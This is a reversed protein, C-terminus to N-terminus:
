HRELRQLALRAVAILRGLEQGSLLRASLELLRSGSRIELDPPTWLAEDGLGPIVKWRPLAVPQTASGGVVVRGPERMTRFTLALVSPTATHLKFFLLSRNPGDYLCSSSPLHPTSEGEVVSGGLVRAADAASLVECATLGTTNSGVAVRNHTAGCGATFVVVLVVTAWRSLM